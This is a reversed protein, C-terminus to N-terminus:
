ALVNVGTTVGVAPVPPNPELDFLTVLQEVGGVGDLTAHHAKVILAVRDDRLGEVVHRQALLVERAANRASGPFAEVARRSAEDSLVKSVEPFTLGVLSLTIVM